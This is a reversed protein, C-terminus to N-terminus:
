TQLGLLEAFVANLYNRMQLVENRSSAVHASISSREYTSRAFSAVRDEIIEVANEPVKMANSALERAKLIYRVKQKMTPTTKDKEYKFGSQAVVDKDPALHDLTERLAERFENAVGRYSIRDEDSLDIIAQKYSLGASPVLNLLTDYIISELGTLSNSQPSLSLFAKEALRLEIAIEAEELIKSLNKFITLYSSKVNAGNSLKLLNQFSTDLQSIIEIDLGLSQLEPRTQRFYSQIVDKAQQRVDSANVNAAKSRSVEKKLLDLATNFNAWTDIQAKDM